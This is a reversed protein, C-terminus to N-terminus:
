VPPPSRCRRAGRARASLRPRDRLRARRGDPRARACGRHAAADIGRALGSVVVVGAAALERGLSAAVASGYASCARAGVVAVSTEQLLGFPAEGRVFLGPPPDHISRLRAPFAPDSRPLWRYGRRALDLRYSEEDFGRLFAAFRTTRPADLLHSGSQAAFVATALENM